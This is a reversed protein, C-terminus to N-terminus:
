ESFCNRFGVWTNIGCWKSSVYGQSLVVCVVSFLRWYYFFSRILCILSILLLLDSSQILINSGVIIHKKADNHLNTIEHM